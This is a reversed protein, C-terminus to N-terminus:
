GQGNDQSTQGQWPGPNIAASAMTSAGIGITVVAIAALILTKM